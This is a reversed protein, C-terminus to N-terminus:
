AAGESEATRGKPSAAELTSSHPWVFANRDSSVFTFPTEPLMALVASRDCRDVCALMAAVADELHAYSGPEPPDGIVKPGKGKRLAPLFVAGLGGEETPGDDAGGDGGGSCATAALAIVGVTMSRAAWRAVERTAM